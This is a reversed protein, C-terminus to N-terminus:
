SFTASFTQHIPGSKKCSLNVWIFPHNSAELGLALEKLQSAPIFSLSGFCVYIVSCAKNSILFKLCESESEDILGKGDKGFKNFTLKDHLSLPGICWVKKAVKEYGRVYNKELEEFTNVLIGQASLESEKFQDIAEKWAKSDQKMAEPLQAKTFEITDPLNPVVFLTSMSDVREHVKSLNINHSCLLTFCSIGHFVVRPINFKSAVNSTWPLCIDSVICSPLKELESLWNELPEKLMNCAAFFLPQYKPSPLADMNECGKPLGAEVCPFPLLQFHIKLNSAKAQDIVMNFREANLPTLVVTVTVGNSAFLKAMEIFPILHCRNSRDEGCAVATMDVAWNQSGHFYGGCQTQLVSSFTTLLLFNRYFAECRLVFKHLLFEIGDSICYTSSSTPATADQFLVIAFVFIRM